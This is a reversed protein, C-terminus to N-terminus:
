SMKFIAGIFIYLYLLLNSYCFRVSSRVEHILAFTGDVTMSDLDACSLRRRRSWHTGVFSIVRYHNRLSGLISPTRKSHPGYVQTMCAAYQQMKSSISRGDSM